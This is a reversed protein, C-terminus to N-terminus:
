DTLREEMHERSKKARAKMDAADLGRDRMEEKAAESAVSSAADKPQGTQRGAEDKAASAASAAVQKVDRTADKALSGAEEKVADAAAGMTEDEWRTTPAALGSALGLGFAVAGLALPQEDMASRLGHKVREAGRRAGERARDAAHRVRDAAEGAADSMRDGEDGERWAYAEGNGSEEDDSSGFSDKADSMKRKADSALGKAKSAMESAKDKAKEAAESAKHKAKDMSSPETSEHVVDGRYPGVRGEARGYTGPGIGRSVVDDRDGKAKDVALWAVGLGMLALPVPHDRITDGLNSVADRATRRGGVRGWVEDVVQGLSLKRELAVVTERLETRTGEIDRRIEESSRHDHRKAM